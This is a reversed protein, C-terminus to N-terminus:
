RSSGSLIRNAEQRAFGQPYDNLYSRAETAAATEPGSAALARMREVRAEEVLPSTPFRSVLESALEAARRADGQQRATMAAQLLRNEAALSSKEVPEASKSAVSGRPATNSAKLRNPARDASASPTSDIKPEPDRTEALPSLSSWRDGAHLLIETGHHQVAVVGETVGVVTCPASDGPAKAREVSFATGHVVVTAEPTQVAFSGFPGLKPVRVTVRGERLVVAEHRPEAANATKRADVHDGVLRVRSRPDIKVEAGSALRAEARGEGSTVVEDASGVPILEEKPLESEAPSRIIQVPGHLTLVATSSAFPDSMRARSRLRTAGFGALLVLV